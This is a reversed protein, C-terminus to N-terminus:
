KPLEGLVAVWCNGAKKNVQCATPNCNGHSLIIDKIRNQELIKVSEILLQATNEVTVNEPLVSPGAQWSGATAAKKNQEKDRSYLVYLAVAGIVGGGLFVGISISVYDM